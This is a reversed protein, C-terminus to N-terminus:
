SGYMNDGCDLWGIWGGVGGWRGLQGRGGGGGAGVVMSGTGEMFGSCNVILYLAKWTGKLHARSEDGPPTHLWVKVGRPM